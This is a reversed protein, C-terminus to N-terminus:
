IEREKRKYYFTVITLVAYVVTILFHIASPIFGKLPISIAYTEDAFERILYGVAIIVFTLVGTFVIMSYRKYFVKSLMYLPVCTIFFGCSLLTLKPIPFAEFIGNGSFGPYLDGQKELYHLVDDYYMNKFGWVSIHDYLGFIVTGAILGGLFFIIIALTRELNSIPLLNIRESRNISDFYPWTMVVLYIPILWMLLIKSGTSENYIAKAWADSTSYIEPHFFKTHFIDGPWYYYLGFALLMVLPFIVILLRNPFYVEKLAIYLRQINLQKNM